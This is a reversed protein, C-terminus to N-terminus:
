QSCNMKHPSVVLAADVAGGGRTLFYENRVNHLDTRFVFGRILELWLRRLKAPDNEPLARNATKTQM